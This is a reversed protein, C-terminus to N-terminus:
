PLVKLIEEIQQLQTLTLNSEKIKEIVEEKNAETQKNYKQEILCLEKLLKSQPALNLPEETKLIIKHSNIGKTKVENIPIFLEKNDYGKVLIYVKKYKKYKELILQKILDKVKM